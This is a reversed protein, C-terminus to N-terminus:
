QIRSKQSDNENTDEADNERKRKRNEFIEIEGSSKEVDSVYSKDDGVHTQHSSIKSAALTKEAEALIKMQREREKMNFGNQVTVSLLQLSTKRRQLNALQRLAERLLGRTFCDPNLGDGYDMMDLLDLPVAAQRLKSKLSADESSGNGRNVQEEVNKLAGIVRQLTAILRTTTEVHISSDDGFKSEPWNKLLDTSDSLRSILNHLRERLPAYERKNSSSSSALKLGSKAM